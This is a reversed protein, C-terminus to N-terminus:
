VDLKFRKTEPMAAMAALQSELRAIHRKSEAERRKSDAELSEYREAEAERERERLRNRDADVRNHQRAWHSLLPHKSEPSSHVDIYIDVFGKRRCLELGSETISKSSLLNRIYKLCFVTLGIITSREDLPIPGVVVSDM